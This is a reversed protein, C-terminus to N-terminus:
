AKVQVWAWDLWPTLAEIDSTDVTAGCWIRLGPPASRYAYGGATGSLLNAAAYGTTGQFAVRCWAGSCSRIDVRAGAPMTDVVRYSTGPGSRLNLDATSRGPAASATGASALVLSAALALLKMRM